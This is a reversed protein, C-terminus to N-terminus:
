WWRAGPGTPWAPPPWRTRTFIFGALIDAKDRSVLETALRKAVEAQPGTDDRYLVEIRRGGAMAGNLRLWTDVGAKMQAGSHAAPGSLSTIVGIRVPETASAAVTFGLAFAATCALAFAPLASGPILNRLITEKDPVLPERPPAPRSRGTTSRHDRM